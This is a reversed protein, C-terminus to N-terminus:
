CCPNDINDVEAHYWDILKIILCWGLPYCVASWTLSDMAQAYTQSRGTYILVVVRQIVNRKKYSSSVLYINIYM